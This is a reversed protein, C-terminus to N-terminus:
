GPSNISSEIGLFVDDVAFDNGNPQTNANVLKLELAACRCWRKSKETAKIIVVARLM